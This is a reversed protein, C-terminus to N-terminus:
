LQHQFLGHNAQMGIKNRDLKKTVFTKLYQTRSSTSKLKNVELIQNLKPNLSELKSQKLQLQREHSEIQTELDKIRKLM